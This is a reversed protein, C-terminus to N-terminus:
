KCIQIILIELVHRIDSGSKVAGDARSLLDFATEYAQTSFNRAQTLSKKVYFPHKRLKKAIDEPNMGEDLLRRLKVLFSFHNNLASIVQAGTRTDEFLENLTSLAAGVNKFGVQENLNFIKSQPRHSTVAKIDEITVVDKRGAYLSTKIIEQSLEWLDAGVTEQFFEIAERSVRKGEKEFRARIWERVQGPELKCPIHLGLDKLATKLEKSPTFRGSSLNKADEEDEFVLLVSTESPRLLYKKIKEGEEAKLRQANYLIILKSESGFPFEECLAVVPAIKTNSECNIRHKNMGTKDFELFKKEFLKELESFAYPDSGTVLYFNRRPVPAGTILDFYTLSPKKKFEKTPM